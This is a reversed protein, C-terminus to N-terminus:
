EVFNKFEKLFNRYLKAEHHIASEEIFHALEEDVGLGTVYKTIKEQLKEDLTEFAPGNYPSGNVVKKEALAEAEASFVIGNLNVEGSMSIVDLLMKQPLNKDVVVLFETYNNQGEEEEKQEEEQNENANEPLKAEYYVKLSHGKAKKSLVLRTSDDNEELNWHNQTLYDSLFKERELDPVEGEIETKLHNFLSNELEKINSSIKSKRITSFLSSPKLLKRLSFM